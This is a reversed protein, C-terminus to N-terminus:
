AILQKYQLVGNGSNGCVAEIFSIADGRDSRFAFENVYRQLHKKSVHHFSGYLGRKLLAWFSEIGNTYAMGDVYEKASHNVVHHSYGKSELGNYSAHDDTMMASKPSVHDQILSQLTGAETNDVVKAVTKGGREKLGVVPTKNAVGRGKLRKNAHKNKEKGGVYTEDAEVVGKLM